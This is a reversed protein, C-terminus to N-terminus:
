QSGPQGDEAVGFARKFEEESYMTMGGPTGGQEMQQLKRLQQLRGRARQSRSRSSDSGSSGQKTSDLSGAFGQQQQQRQQLPPPQQQPQQQQQQQGPKSLFSGTAPLGGSLSRLGKGWQRRQQQPQQQPQTQQQPQPSQPQQQQEQDYWSGLEDLMELEEELGQPLKMPNIGVQVSFVAVLAM